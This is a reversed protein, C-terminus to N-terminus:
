RHNKLAISLSHMFNCSQKLRKGLSKKQSMLNVLASGIIFGDAASKLNKLQQPQSIGFGLLVPVKSIKKVTGLFKKIEGLPLNRRAGTVGTISVCYIFGSSQSAVSRIRKETSTPALLNILHLGQQRFWKRVQTSEEPILDPVIAGDFGARALEEASRKWGRCFLTNSYGMFVLPADSKKRISRCLQMLKNWTVGNKLASESSRQITPGDAIPDSFPFGIEFLDVGSKELSLVMKETTNLDPYGATLFAALAKTRSSKM